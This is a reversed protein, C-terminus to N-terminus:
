LDVYRRELVEGDVVDALVYYQDVRLTGIRSQLVYELPYHVMQVVKGSLGSEAM